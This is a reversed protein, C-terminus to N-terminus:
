IFSTSLIQGQSSSSPSSSPSSPPQIAVIFTEKVVICCVSPLYILPFVQIFTRLFMDFASASTCWPESFPKNLIFIVHVRTVHLKTIDTIAIHGKTIDPTKREIQRVWTERALTIKFETVQNFLLQIYLHPFIKQLFPTWGELLTGCVQCSASFSNQLSTTAQDWVLVSLTPKEKLKDGMQIHWDTKM